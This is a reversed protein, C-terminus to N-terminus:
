YPTYTYYYYAFPYLFAMLSAAYGAAMVTCFALKQFSKRSEEAAKDRSPVLAHEEAPTFKLAITTM